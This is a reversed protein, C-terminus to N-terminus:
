HNWYDNYIPQLRDHVVNMVESFSLNDKWKIKKLFTEWRKIRTEDTAFAETFLQLDANYHLERNSFTAFIAERLVGNDIEQNLTLLMYCDFFDKMRSNAVDRDIMSHFKEAIVTEISYAQISVAPLDSLLLPFDVVVPCPTVVDGFGIDVSMNYEITDMHAIIFIRTGPYDKDVTIPKSSPTALNFTVGDEDCKADLIKRFVEELQNQGRSIKDAMFDVDVTPRANLGDLAYLLSGGKLLFNQRYDSVSVRYLLRENFYRALLYMYDHGTANKLNLLRTRISKGKNKVTKM